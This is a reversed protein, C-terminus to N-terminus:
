MATSSISFKKDGRYNGNDYSNTGSCVCLMKTTGYYVTYLTYTWQGHWEHNCHLAFQKHLWKCKESILFISLWDDFVYVCQIRRGIISSVSYSYSWFDDNVIHACARGIKWNWKVTGGVASSSYLPICIYTNYLVSRVKTLHLATPTRKCCRFREMEILEMCLFEIMPFSVLRPWITISIM